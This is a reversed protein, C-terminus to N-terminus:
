LRVLKYMSLDLRVQLTIEASRVAAMEAMQAASRQVALLHHHMRVLLERLLLLVVKLLLHWRHTRRDGTPVACRLRGRNVIVEHIRVLAGPVRVVRGGRQEGLRGTSAAFGRIKAKKLNM